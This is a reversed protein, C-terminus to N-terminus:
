WYLMKLRGWTTTKTPTALPCMHGMHAQMLTVDADTVIGDGDFDGTPDAHGRKGQLIALDMADVIRDGNQDPSVISRRGFFVGEAYVTVLSDPCTGGARIPFEAVSQANTTRTLTERVRDIQYPPAMGPQDPCLAFSTCPAFALTVTYGPLANNAFDRLTVRFVADGEPCVMLVPAVTSYYPEPLGAIAPLATVTMALALAPLLFRSGLM